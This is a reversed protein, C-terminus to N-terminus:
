DRESGTARGGDAESTLSQGDIALGALDYLTEGACVGRVTNHEHGTAVAAGAAARTARRYVPAIGVGEYACSEGSVLDPTYRGLQCAM